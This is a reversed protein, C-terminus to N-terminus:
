EAIPGLRQRVAAASLGIVKVRKERSKLGRAIEIRQRAVDLVRALLDILERNAANDVPSAKLRILLAGDRIGAIASRGSRPIVRVDLTTGDAADAIM